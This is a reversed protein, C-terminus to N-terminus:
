LENREHLPGSEGLILFATSAFVLNIALTYFHQYIRTYLIM